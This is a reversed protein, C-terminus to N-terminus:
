MIFHNAERVPGSEFKRCMEPAPKSRLRLAKFMSLWVREFLARTSLQNPVGKRFINLRPAHIEGPGDSPREPLNQIALYGTDETNM